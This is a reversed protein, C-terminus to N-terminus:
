EYKMISIINRNVQEKLEEAEMGRLIAAHAYLTDISLNSEDSEMMLRDPPCLCLAEDNYHEGFSLFFGERLLQRAQDPKGRFAHIVWPEHPFRTKHLRIVEDFAKVCHVILPKKMEAALRAQIEFVELQLEMKGGHLRDIGAEGVAVVQPLSLWPLLDPCTQATREEDVHWPHLGISLPITSGEKLLPSSLFDDDGISLSIIARGDLKEPTFHAHIDIIM